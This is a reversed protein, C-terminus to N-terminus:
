SRGQSQFAFTWDDVTLASVQMAVLAATDRAQDAYPDGGAISREPVSHATFVVPVRTGLEECARPWVAALREAYARVLLPHDHWSEVFDVDFAPNAENLARRYLGVSTRSNQPALCIAVARGVGAQAMERVAEAIYPKWNRMGTFVPLQLERQLAAAQRMTIDLLPSKGIRVYRRQIEQVTEPPVARGGTINNMFAPVDDPSDPSGHALLLVASKASASM